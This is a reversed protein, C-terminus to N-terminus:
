KGGNLLVTLPPGVTLTWKPPYARADTHYDRKVPRHRLGCRLFRFFSDEVFDHGKFAPIMAL